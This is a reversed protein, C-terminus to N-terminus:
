GKARGRTARKRGDLVGRVQGDSSCGRCFPVGAARVFVPSIGRAYHPRRRIERESVLLFGCGGCDCVKLDPCAEEMLREFHTVDSM